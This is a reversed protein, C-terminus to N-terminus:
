LASGLGGPLTSLPGCDVKSSTTAVTSVTRNSYRDQQIIGIRRLHHVIASHPRNLRHREQSLQMTGLGPVDCM